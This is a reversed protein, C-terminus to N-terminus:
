LELKNYDYSYLINDIVNYFTQKAALFALEVTGSVM